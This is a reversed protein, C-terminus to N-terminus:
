IVRELAVRVTYINDRTALALLKLNGLGKSLIETYLYKNQTGIGKILSGFSDSHHRLATATSLGGATKYLPTGWINLEASKICCDSTRTNGTCVTRSCTAGATTAAGFSKKSSCM